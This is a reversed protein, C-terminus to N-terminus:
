GITPSAYADLSRIWDKKHKENRFEHVRAQHCLKAAEDFTLRKAQAARLANQAARRAALPDVGAWVQDRIERGRERAQELTVTPYAGLGMERRRGGVMVRQIWSRAGSAKVNLCLGDVGGVAHLGPRKIRRVQYASLERAKKPM